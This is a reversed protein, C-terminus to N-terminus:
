KDNSINVNQNITPIKKAIFETVAIGALAYLAEKIEEIEADTYNNSKLHKKCEEMSFM